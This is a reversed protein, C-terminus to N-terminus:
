PTKYIILFILQIIGLYGFFPYLLNILDSFNIKGMLISTICIIIMYKKYRKKNKIINNLFGYITTVATTFIAMLIITGYISKINKNLKNAIYVMPMEINKIESKYNNLLLFIILSLIILISNVILVVMNIEKKNTIKGKLSILIPILTISNYSSYLISSILWYLSYTDNQILVIQQVKIQNIGIFLIFVSIIPILMKNLRIIGNTKKNLSFFSLIAIIMAGYIKKINLEQFVYTSFGSVMINFIILLFINVINNISFILIKNTKFKKPFITEIFKKYNNIDNKHLLNFVKYIVISILNISIILGILGILIIGILFAIFKRVLHLDQELLQGM